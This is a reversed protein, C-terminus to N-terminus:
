LGTLALPFALPNLLSLILPFPSVEGQGLAVSKLLFALVNM